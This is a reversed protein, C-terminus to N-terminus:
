EGVDLIQNEVIFDTLKNISSLVSMDDDNLDVDFRSAIGISLELADISDLELGRGFLPQDNQIMAPEVDIMLSEIIIEKLGTIIEKRMVIEKRQEEWNIM